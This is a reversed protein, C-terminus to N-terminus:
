LHAATWGTYVGSLDGPVTDGFYFYLPLGKYAWQLTGDNRTIISFDGGAQDISEAYLPPWIRACDDHCNSQGSFAVDSDFTYLSLGTKDSFTDLKAGDDDVDAVEGRAVWIDGESTEPSRQVPATRAAYWFNEAGFFDDGNTQGAVTDNIFFYLPRGKYAWQQTGDDRTVISMLASPKAGPDTYLPPWVSACMGNCNSGGSDVVDSDFTYLTFDDRQRRSDAQSGDTEVDIVSGKGAFLSGINSDVVQLPDPRAAYWLDGAGEIGHGQTQGPDADFRYFYIPYTKFAWQQTGDDRTIISFDGSARAGLDAYLPPWTVACPGNCSSEGPTADDAVFTYLTFGQRDTRIIGKEGETTVDIVSHQGAFVLGSTTDDISVEQWPNPRAVYWVGNVGEGNIDGQQEDLYYFYLPYEKFAWQRSGDDRTVISFDGSAVASDGAFLPPWIDACGGNCNSRGPSDSEFTYLTLGQNASFVTGISTDVKSQPALNSQYGTDPQESPAGSGSGGSSCAGLILACFLSSLGTTVSRSRNFLQHKM